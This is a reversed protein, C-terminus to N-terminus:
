YLEKLDSISKQTLFLIMECKDDDLEQPNEIQKAINHAANM